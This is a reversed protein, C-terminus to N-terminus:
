RPWSSLVKFEDVFYGNSTLYDFLSELKDKVSFRRQLVEGNPLRFRIRSVGGDAAEDGPEGPLKELAVRIRAEREKM